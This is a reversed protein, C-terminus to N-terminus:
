DAFFTRSAIRVSLRCHLWTYITQIESRDERCVHLNLFLKAIRTMCPFPEDQSPSAKVIRDSSSSIRRLLAPRHRLESGHATFLSAVATTNM